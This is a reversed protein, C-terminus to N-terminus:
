TYAYKSVNEMILHEFKDKKTQLEKLATSYDPSKVNAQGGATNSDNKDYTTIVCKYYSYLSEVYENAVQVLEPFYLLCLNLAKRSSPCQALSFVSEETRSGNLHVLYELSESFHFMMEEYKERLLVKRKYEREVDAHRAVWWQSIAVGSLVSLASIIPTWESM